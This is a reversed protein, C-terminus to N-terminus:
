KIKKVFFPKIILQTYLFVIMCIASGFVNYQHFKRYVTYNYKFLDIKSSSISNQHIRYFALSEPVVYASKIKKVITLWMIWDQRKRIKSVTIIGFYEADYIGTLNGVYNCFFLQRYSLKRPAEVRRNLSKGDQNICEYFSFTFPLNNEMLFDVQKKLKQSKWVDDSDLFAIYKGKALQVAYNRAVGAGSNEILKHLQIRSDYKIFKQILDVTGDSSADDVIIMEWNQYTQNQVSEITQAIFAESNYTPTIISVLSEM